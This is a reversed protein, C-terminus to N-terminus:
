SIMNTQMYDTDTCTSTYKICMQETCIKNSFRKHTIVHM